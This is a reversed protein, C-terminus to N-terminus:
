KWRIEDLRSLLENWKEVSAWKICQDSKQETGQKNNWENYGLSVEWTWKPKRRKNNHDSEYFQWVLGNTYIVKKFYQIHNNLQNINKTKSQEPNDIVENIHKAEIAGLVGGDRLKRKKIKEGARYELSLIVFDPFGSPGYFNRTCLRKSLRAGSVDRISIERSSKRDRMVCAIISYLECEYPNQDKILKLERKYQEFDNALSM